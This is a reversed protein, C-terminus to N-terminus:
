EKRRETDEHGIIKLNDMYDGCLILIENETRLSSDMILSISQDLLNRFCEQLLIWDDCILKKKISDQELIM